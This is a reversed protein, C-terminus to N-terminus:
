IPLSCTRPEMFQIYVRARHIFLCHQSDTTFPMIVDRWLDSLRAILYVMGNIVFEMHFKVINVKM